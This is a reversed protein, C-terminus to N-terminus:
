TWLAPCLFFVFSDVLAFLRFVVYRLDRNTQLWCVLVFTLSNKRTFFGFYTKRSCLNEDQMKQFNRCFVLM